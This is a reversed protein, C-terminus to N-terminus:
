DLTTRVHRADPLTVDVQARMSVRVDSSVERCWDVSDLWTRLEDHVQGTDVTDAVDIVLVAYVRM